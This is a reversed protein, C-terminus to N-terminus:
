WPDLRQLYALMAASTERPHEQQTWHGCHEIVIKELNPVRAEMGDAMAWNLFESALRTKGVGAEGELIFVQTQGQRVAYSATILRALEIARGVM